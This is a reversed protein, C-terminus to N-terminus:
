RGPEVRELFWAMAEWAAPQALLDNHGAGEIEVWKASRGLADALRRGQDVPIIGDERGHVLLAPLELGDAAALSDYRESLAFQVVPGPFVKRAVDPLSTWPSLAILGALREESRAALGIAVAAGLSWGAAVVPRGPHHERVWALAADGTAHITSESPTGPSNGYGPYDVGMVAAGLEHFSRFTGAMRVTELNEGNGHFFVVLPASDGSGVTAPAGTPAEQYWAVAGGGEALELHVAELPEPPPSPVPVPPAPYIMSRVLPDLM